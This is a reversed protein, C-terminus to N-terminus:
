KEKYKGDYGGLHINTHHDKTKEVPYRKRNDEITFRIAEDMDVGCVNALSALFWYLDGIADKVEEKNDAMVKKLDGPDNVWKIINRFEGVEEVLGLLLDKVNHFQTWNREECFQKIEEQYHNM